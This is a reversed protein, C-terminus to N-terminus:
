PRLGKRGVSLDYPSADPAAGSEVAAAKTAMARYTAKLDHCLQELREVEDLLALVETHPIAVHADVDAAMACQARLAAREAPTLPLRNPTM